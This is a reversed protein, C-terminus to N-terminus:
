SAKVEVIARVHVDYNLDTKVSNGNIDKVIIFGDNSKSISLFDCGPVRAQLKKGGNKNFLVKHKKELKVAIDDLKSEQKELTEKTKAIKEGQEMALFETLKGKLHWGGLTTVRNRLREEQKQAKELKSNAALWKVGAVRRANDEPSGEEGKPLSEFYKQLRDDEEELEALSPKVKTPDDSQVGYKVRKWANLARTAVVEEEKKISDSALSEELKAITNNSM